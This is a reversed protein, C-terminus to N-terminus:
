PVIKHAIAKSIAETASHVHLKEYIRKCHGNVTHYSIGKQDAIMKYSLGKMLLALIEQERESLDFRNEAPGKAATRFTEVVKKAISPSMPAGGEMADRIADLLRLSTTKKLIYGNAGAQIAAFIKDEDEFVTQMLIILDPFERRLAKLGEIGNVKPMDIDMLVLSPRAQRVDQVAQACNDFVGVCVMDDTDDLLMKLAEQRGKNDDFVAIRM